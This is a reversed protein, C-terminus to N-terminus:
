GCEMWDRGSDFWRSVILCEFVWFPMMGHIEFKIGKELVLSPFKDWKCSVCRNSTFPNKSDFPFGTAGNVFVFGAKNDFTKKLLKSFIIKVSKAWNGFWYGDM